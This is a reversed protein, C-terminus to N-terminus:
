KVVRNLNINPFSLLRRIAKFNRRVCCKILPCIEKRNIDIEDMEILYDIMDDFGRKCAYPLAEESNLEELM